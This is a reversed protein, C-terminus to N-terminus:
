TELYREKTLQHQNYTLLECPLLKSIGEFRTRNSWTVGLNVAQWLGEPDIKCQHAKALALESSSVTLGENTESYFIPIFSNFDTALFCNRGTADYGILAFHGDVQTRLFKVPDKFFRRMLGIRKASRYKHIAILPTGILALWSGDSDDKIVVDNIPKELPNSHLLANQASATLTVGSNIADSFIESLKSSIDEEVGVTCFFESM